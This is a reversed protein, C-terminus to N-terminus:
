RHHSVQQPCGEPYLQFDGRKRGRRFPRQTDDDSMVEDMKLATCLLAWTRNPSLKVVYNNSTNHTYVGDDTFLKNRLTDRKENQQMSQQILFLGRRRHCVM